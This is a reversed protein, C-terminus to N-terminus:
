TVTNPKARTSDRDTGCIAVSCCSMAQRCWRRRRCGGRWSFEDQPPRGAKHSGPILTTPGLEETMDNLYFHATASFIPVTISPDEHVYEPLRMPLYDIHIGMARGKGTTWLSGGTVHAGPDLIAHVVDIVGPRDIYSLFQPEQSFDTGQHRNYCWKEVVWKSDDPGGKEDMFQRLAAVEDRNLVNPFIAYGDTFMQQVAREVDISDPRPLAELPGRYTTDGAGKELHHGNPATLSNPDTLMASM